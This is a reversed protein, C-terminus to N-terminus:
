IVGIKEGETIDNFPCCIVMANFEDDCNGRSVNDFIPVEYSPCYATLSRQRAAQEASHLGIRGFCGHLLHTFLLVCPSELRVERPTQWLEVM